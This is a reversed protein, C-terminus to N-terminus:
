VAVELSAEYQAPSQYGLSSHLRTHNYFRLYDAVAAHAERISSWHTSSVLEAKLSSFFSDVPANDWCNGVRSMSVTIGRAELLSRYAHSAYQTGRDSHPLQPQPRTGLAVHLAATM